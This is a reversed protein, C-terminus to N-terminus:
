PAGCVSSPEERVHIAEIQTTVAPDVATRVTLCDNEQIRALCFTRGTGAEGDVFCSASDSIGVQYAESPGQLQFGVPGVASVRGTVAYLTPAGSPTLPSMKVETICWSDAPAGTCPAEVLVLSKLDFDVILKGDAFPNVAGNLQIVCPEELGVACRVINPKGPAGDFDQFRAVHVTGSSEVEATRGIVVELRHYNRDPLSADGVFQLVGSLATLDLRFGEESRVVNTRNVCGPDSCLNVEFIDVRVSGYTDGAADTVYVGVRSSDESEGCGFAGLGFAAFGAALWLRGKM